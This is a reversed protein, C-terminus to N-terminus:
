TPSGSAWAVASRPWGTSRGGTAPGPRRSPRRWPPREACPPSATPGAFTELCGHNGCGCPPGDADIVQHGMEGATGDHGQLVRGDIAIGGGVGTGLTFGIISDVGRGAGLRLEAAVFARADNVLFAPVGLAAAVPAAVPVGAWEGPLNVLFRTTGAVPDSLGPVGIGVSALPAWAAQASRGVAALQAVVGPPGEDAVTPVRGADLRRWAEGAREVIAWKLNTGGLDLGLHRTAQRAIM